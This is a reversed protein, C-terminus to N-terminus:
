RLATARIGPSHWRARQPAAHAAAPMIRQHTKPANLPSDDPARGRAQTQRRGCNRWLTSWRAASNTSSATGPRAGPRSRRSCRDRVASIRPSTAPGRTTRAGRQRYRAVDRRIVDAFAEAQKPPLSGRGEGSRSCIALDDGRNAPAAAVYSRRDVLFLNLAISLPLAIRRWRPMTRSNDQSKARKKNALIELAPQLMTLLADADPAAAHSTASGPWSWSPAEPQSGLGILASGRFSGGVGQRFYNM